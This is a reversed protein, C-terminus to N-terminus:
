QWDVLTNGELDYVAYDYEMMNNDLYKEMEEQFPNDGCELMLLQEKTVKVQKSVQQTREMNIVIEIDDTDEKFIMYKNNEIKQVTKRVPCKACNVESLESCRLCIYDVSDVLQKYEEKDMISDQYNTLDYVEDFGIIDIDDFLDTESNHLEKIYYDKEKLFDYGNGVGDEIDENTKRCFNEIVEKPADTIFLMADHSMGETILVKRKDEM